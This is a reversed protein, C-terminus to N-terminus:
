QELTRGRQGMILRDNYGDIWLGYFRTGFEYPPAYCNGNEFFENAAEWGLEYIHMDNEYVIINERIDDQPPINGLIYDDMRDMWEPFIKDPQKFFKFPRM